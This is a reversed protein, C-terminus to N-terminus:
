EERAWERRDDFVLETFRVYKELGYEDKENRYKECVREANKPTFGCMVLRHVKEDM